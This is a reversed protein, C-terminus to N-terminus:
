GKKGIAAAIEEQFAQEDGVDQSRRYRKAARRSIREPDERDTLRDARACFVNWEEPPALFKPRQLTTLM